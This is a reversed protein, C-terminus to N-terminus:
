LEPLRGTQVLSAGGRRGVFYGRGPPMPRPRVAGLLDGEAPDGSLVVGQAGLEKIRQMFSEYMSRSAGASNRAIIFRVGTDRAFPLYEALPALSNGASTAVLDYDDVVIFVQPGVM